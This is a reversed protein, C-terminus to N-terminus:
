AGRRDLVAVPCRIGAARALRGDTTVLETHLAEALAVYAADTTTVNARLEWIREALAGFGAVVLPISRFRAFARDAQATDLMRAAEYRRIVNSVEYEAVTPVAIRRDGIVGAVEDGGGSADLVLTIFASADVM